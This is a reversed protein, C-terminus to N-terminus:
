AAMGLRFSESGDTKVAPFPGVWFRILSETKPLPYSGTECLDACDYYELGLHSILDQGIIHRLTNKLRLSQIFSDPEPYLGPGRKALEPFLVLDLVIAAAKADAAAITLEGNAAPSPPPRM